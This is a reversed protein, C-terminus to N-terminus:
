PPSLGLFSLVSHTLQVSLKMPLSRNSMVVFYHRAIQYKRNKLSQTGLGQALYARVLALFCYSHELWQRMFELIVLQDELVRVDVHRKAITERLEVM